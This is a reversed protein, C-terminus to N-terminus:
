SRVEEIEVPSFKGEKTRIALIGPCVLKIQNATDIPIGTYDLESFAFGLAGNNFLKM